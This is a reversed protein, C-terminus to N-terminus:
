TSPWVLISGASTYAEVTFETTDMLVVEVLPVLMKPWVTSVALAPLPKMM